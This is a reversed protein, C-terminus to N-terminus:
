LFIEVNKNGFVNDSLILVGFLVYIRAKQYGIFREKKKEDYSQRLLFMSVKPIFQM